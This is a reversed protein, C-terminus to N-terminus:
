WKLGMEESIKKRRETEYKEKVKKKDGICFNFITEWGDENSDELEGCELIVRYNSGFFKFGLNFLEM